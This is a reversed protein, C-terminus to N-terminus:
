APEPIGEPDPEVPEVLPEVPAPPLTDPSGPELEGPDDPIPAGPDLPPYRDPDSSVGQTLM